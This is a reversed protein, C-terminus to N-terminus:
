FRRSTAIKFTTKNIMLWLCADNLILIHSSKSMEFKYALVSQFSSINTIAENLKKCISVFANQKSKFPM